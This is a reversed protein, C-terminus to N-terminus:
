KLARRINKRVIYKIEEMDDQSIGIFPRAPITVKKVQAYGKGVAFKLFKAKKAKIERGEQHVSAYKVNTGYAVGEPRAKFTISNKLRASDTLTQGGEEEARISKPWAKGDPDEEDEFRKQASAVLTEGIQEHMGQFDLKMMKELHKELKAWDGELKIGAM